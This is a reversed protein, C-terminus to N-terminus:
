LFKYRLDVAVRRAGLVKYVVACLVSTQHYLLVQLTM